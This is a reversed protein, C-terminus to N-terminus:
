ILNFNYIDDNYLLFSSSNTINRDFQKIIIPLVFENTITLIFNLFIFENIM